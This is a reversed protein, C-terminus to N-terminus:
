SHPLIDLSRHVKAPSPNQNNRPFSEDEGVATQIRKQKYIVRLNFESGTKLHSCNGPSSAQVTIGQATHIAATSNVTRELSCNVNAYCGPYQIYRCKQQCPFPFPQSIQRKKWAVYSEQKAGNPDKFPIRTESTTIVYFLLANFSSSISNLICGTKPHSITNWFRLHCRLVFM